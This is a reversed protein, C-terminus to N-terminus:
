YWVNLEKRRFERYAKGTKGVGEKKSSSHFSTDPPTPLGWALELMEHQVGQTGWKHSLGMRRHTGCLVLAGSARGQTRHLVGGDAFHRVLELCTGPLSWGGRQIGQTGQIRPVSRATRDLIDTCAGSFSWRNM